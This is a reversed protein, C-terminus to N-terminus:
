EKFWTVWIKDQSKNTIDYSKDLEFGMGKNEIHKVCEKPRRSGQSVGM